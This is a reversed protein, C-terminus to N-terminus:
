TILGVVVEEILLGLRHLRHLVRQLLDVDIMFVLLLLFMLLLLLQDFLM